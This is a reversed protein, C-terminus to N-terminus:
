GDRNTPAAVQIWGDSRVTVRFGRYEFAVRGVSDRRAGPVPLGFLNAEIASTDVVEYLPPDRVATIATGEAAAVASVVTTTLDDPGTREYARQEVVGWDGDVPGTAEDDRESM